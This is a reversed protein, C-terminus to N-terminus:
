IFACGGFLSLSFRELTQVYCLPIHDAYVWGDTWGDVLRHTHSHAHVHSWTLLESFFLVFFFLPCWSVGPFSDLSSSSRRFHFSLTLFLSLSNYYLMRDHHLVVFTCGCCTWSSTSALLTAGSSPAFTTRSPSSTRRLRHRLARARLRRATIERATPAISSDRSCMSSM